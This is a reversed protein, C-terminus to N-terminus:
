KVIRLHPHKTTTCTNKPGPNPKILNDMQVGAMYGIHFAQMADFESILARSLAIDRPDMIFKQLTKKNVFCLTGRRESVLVYKGYRNTTYNEIKKQQKLHLLPVRNANKSQKAYEIGIYCAQIPHLAYLIDVDFVLDVLKLNFFCKKNICQLVYEHNDEIFDVIKYFIFDEKRDITERHKQRLFSSFIGTVAKM